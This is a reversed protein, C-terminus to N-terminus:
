GAIKGRHAHISTTLGKTSTLSHRVSKIIFDSGDVAPSLGSLALPAEAFVDLKARSLALVVTAVGRGFEALKVEAKQRASDENEAFRRMLYVPEGTGIKVFEDKSNEIDRWRAKVAGYKGREAVEYRWSALDAKKIRVPSLAKGSVGARM